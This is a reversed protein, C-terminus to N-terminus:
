RGELSKGASGEKPRAVGLMSALSGEDLTKKGEDKRRRHKYPCRIMIGKGKVGIGYKL